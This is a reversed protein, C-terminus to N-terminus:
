VWFFDRYIFIITRIMGAQAIMLTVISYFLLLIFFKKNYFGVCNNIWPCHHDMNLVCRGCKSCHHCRDPKFTCCILCYRRHMFDEENLFFGKTFIFFLTIIGLKKTSQRPWCFHINPIVLITSFFICPFSSYLYYVM